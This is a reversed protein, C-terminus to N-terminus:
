ISKIVITGLLVLTVVKSGFDKQFQMVQHHGAMHVKCLKLNFVMLEKQVHGLNRAVPKVTIDLQVNQMEPGDELGSMLFQSKTRNPHILAVAM